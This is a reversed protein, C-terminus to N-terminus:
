HENQVGADVVQVGIQGAEHVLASGDVHKTGEGDAAHRKGLAVRHGLVERRALRKGVQEEVAGVDRRRHTAIRERGGAHCGTRGQHCHFHTGVQIGAGKARDQATHGVGRVIPGVDDVHAQTTGEGLRPFPRNTPSILM